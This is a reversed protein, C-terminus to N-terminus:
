PKEFALDMLKPKLFQYGLVTKLKQNSVIKYSLAPFGEEPPTNDIVDFNPIPQGADNAAYSYFDQKSPHEDACCSLVEGWISKDIVAKIIAICDDQHILNVKAEPHKVPKGSRFFRGPHRQYGFTGALRLVTTQFATNRLLLTEIQALPHELNADEEYVVTNTFPYVSTSSIFIVNKIPSEAILAALNKFAAVNKCTINIILCSANLFEKACDILDDASPNKNGLAEIDFQCSEYGLARLADVRERSRTALRTHDSSLHQAIALGLWGGGLIALRETNIVKGEM